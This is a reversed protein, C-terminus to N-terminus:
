PYILKGHEKAFSEPFSVHSIKNSSNQLQRDTEKKIEDPSVEYIRLIDLPMSTNPNTYALYFAKNRTIRAMSGLYKNHQVSDTPDDKFVRDIQGAGGVKGSLYEYEDKSNTRSCADANKKSLIWDHGLIDAMKLEKMAGPQFVNFGLRSGIEQLQEALELAKKVDEINARLSLVKKSKTAM